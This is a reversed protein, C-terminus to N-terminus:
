EIRVRSGGEGIKAPSVILKMPIRQKLDEVHSIIGITLGEDHLKELVDMVTDLLDKDLTGFGEDLFFFELSASSRMQIQKSLALALALSVVFTEGGSLTKVDREDGGMKFDKVIFEGKDDVDLKYLGNTISSLIDTATLTVLELQKLAMFEVFARGKFVDFLENLMAQYEMLAEQEAKKGKAEELGQKNTEYDKEEKSFDDRASLYTHSVDEYQKQLRRLGEESVRQGDMGEKVSEIEGRKKSIYEIHAELRRKYELKAEPSVMDARIEAILAALLVEKQGQDLSGFEVMKLEEARKILELRAQELLDTYNRLESLAVDRLKLAEQRAAEREESLKKAEGHAEELGDLEEKVRAADLAPDRAEGLLQNFYLQHAGLKARLEDRSVGLGAMSAKYETLETDLSSIQANKEALYAEEEELSDQLRDLEAQRKNLEELQTKPSEAGEGLIDDVAKQLRTIDKNMFGKEHVLRNLEDRYEVLRQNMAELSNELTLLEKEVEKKGEGLDTLRSQYAKYDKELTELRLSLSARDGLSKASELYSELEKREGERATLSLELETKARQFQNRMEEAEELEAKLKAQLGSTDAEGESDLSLTGVRNSCVPCSDGEHLSARIVHISQHLIFAEYEEKRAKYAEEALALDSSLREAEEYLGELSTAVGDLEEKKKAYADAEKLGELLLQKQGIYYNADRFPQEEHTELEKALGDLELGKEYAELKLDEAEKETKFLKTESRGILETQKDAQEKLVLLNNYLSLAEGLKEREESSIKNERIYGKKEEMSCLIQTQEELAGARAEEAERQGEEAKSYAEDTEKLRAESRQYDEWRQGAERLRSQRELLSPLGARYDEDVKTYAARAEEAEEVMKSLRAEKLSLDESASARKTRLESYNRAPSDLYDAREARGLRVRIEEMEDARAEEEALAKELEALRKQLEMVVKMKEYKETVDRRSIELTKIEEAMKKLGEEQARLGEESLNNFNSLSGELEKMKLAVETRAASIKTEIENGYKELGFIRELINRRGAGTMKLFHEFGGQPLVVTKVFDDYDLGILGKVVDSVESTNETLVTGDDVCIVKSETTGLKYAEKGDKTFKNSSVERIVKYTRASGSNVEFEFVVRAVNGGTNIYGRHLNKTNMRAVQGYLAFTIADLVTSKGSGTPGFIGFLGHKSLKEFDISQEEIFSNFGKINIRIPRM